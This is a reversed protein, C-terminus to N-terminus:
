KEERVHSKCDSSQSEHEWAISKRTHSDSNSISSLGRAAYSDSKSVSLLGRATTSRGESDQQKGIAAREHSVGRQSRGRREGYEGKVSVAHGLGPPEDAQHDRANAEYWGASGEDM